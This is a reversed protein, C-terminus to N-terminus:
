YIRKEAQVFSDEMLLTNLENIDMGETNLDITGSENYSAEFFDDLFTPPYLLVDGQYKKNSVYRKQPMVNKAKAYEAVQKGLISGAAEGLYDYLSIYDSM